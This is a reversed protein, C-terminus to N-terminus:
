SYNSNTLQELIQFPGYFHKALKSYPAGTNQMQKHPRLKVMVLDGIKFNVERTHNDAFQKMRKQAKMLKKKLSAFM